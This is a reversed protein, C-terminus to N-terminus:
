FHLGVGLLLQQRQLKAGDKGLDSYRYELRGSLGGGLMREVGAGATWGGLDVEDRIVGDKGALSTSARVRAYGGRVYALTDQDVLYGARATLDASWKPDVEFTAGPDRTVVSDKIGASFDAEGGIVLSGMQVDYGAFIGGTAANKSKDVNLDVAGAPMRGFKDHQGGAQVGVFPGQFSQAFAPTATASAALAMAVIMKNM